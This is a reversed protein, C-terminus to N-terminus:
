SKPAEGIPPVPEPASPAVTTTEKVGTGEITSEKITKTGVGSAKAQGDEYSIGLIVALFPLVVITMAEASWAFGFRAAGASIVGLIAVVFKRSALLAKVAHWM